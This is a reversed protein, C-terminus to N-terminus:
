GRFFLKFIVLLDVLKGTVRFFFFIMLIHWVQKSWCLADLQGLRHFSLYIEGAVACPARRVRSKAGWSAKSLIKERGVEESVWVGGLQKVDEHAGQIGQGRSGLWRRRM